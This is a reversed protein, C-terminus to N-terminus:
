LLEALQEMREDAVDGAIEPATNLGFDYSSAVWCGGEYVHFHDCVEVAAMDAAARVISRVAEATCRIGILESRPWVTGLKIGQPKSKSLRWPLLQLALSEPWRPREFWVEGKDRLWAPMASLFQLPDRVEISHV